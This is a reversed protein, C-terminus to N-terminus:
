SGGGGMGGVGGGKGLEVREKQGAELRLYLQRSAVRRRLGDQWNSKQGDDM